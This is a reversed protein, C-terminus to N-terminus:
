RSAAARANTAWNTLWRTADDRTFGDSHANFLTRIVAMVCQPRDRRDHRLARESPCNSGSSARSRGRTAATKRRAAKKKPKAPPASAPEDRPDQPVLEGRFAKALISQDAVPNSSAM